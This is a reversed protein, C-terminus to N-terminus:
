DGLGKRWRESLADVEAEVVVKGDLGYITLTKGRTV